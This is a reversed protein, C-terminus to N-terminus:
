PENTQSVTRFLWRTIWQKSLYEKGIDLWKTIHEQRLIFFLTIVYAAFVYHYIRSRIIPQSRNHYANYNNDLIDKIKIYALTLVVILVLYMITFLWKHALPKREKYLYVILASVLFFISIILHRIMILACYVNQYFKAYQIKTPDPSPGIVYQGIIQQEALFIVLGLIFSFVVVLISIPLYLEKIKDINNFVKINTYAQILLLIGLLYIFGPVTLNQFLQLYDSLFSEM